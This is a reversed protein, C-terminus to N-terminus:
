AGRRRVKRKAKKQKEARDQADAESKPVSVIARTLKEFASRVPQRKKEQM